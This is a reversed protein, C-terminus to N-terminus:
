LKEALTKAKKICDPISVGGKWNACIYLHQQELSEAIEYSEIIYKDYQPLAKEWRFLRQSVPLTQVGYLERLEKQVKAMIQHDEMRTKEYGRSGGVFTTFLVENEKCRGSFVSSSWVHGLSFLGEKSPHLAGFGNLPMKLDNKYYVTHVAVMPAYAIKQLSEGFKPNSKVFFQSAQHTTTTLIVKSAQYTTESTVVEWTKDNLRNIEQVGKESYIIKTKTALAKPLTQMGNKFSIVRKRETSKNKKLGKLISGYQSEMEVLSPFTYQVLLEDPNGAYIGSVFPDLAYDVVERSFRREFFETLTEKSHTKSRVKGEGFIKFKTAWSFFSNFLLSVPSSPLKRYAGNKYVYRNKSVVNADIIENSINLEELFSLVESDCLLSNPGLEYLYEQERVSRIYGGVQNENSKLEILIYEKKQKELHYALTLGSIGAGIIVIM